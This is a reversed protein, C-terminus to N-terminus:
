TEDLSIMVDGPKIFSSERSFSAFLSRCCCHTTSRRWETSSSSASKVNDQGFFNGQRLRNKYQFGRNKRESIYVCKIWMECFM